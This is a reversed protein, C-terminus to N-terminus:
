KGYKKETKEIIDKNLAMIQKEMMSDRKMSKLIGQFSILISFIWQEEARKRL